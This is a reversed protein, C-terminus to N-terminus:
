AARIAPLDSVYEPGRDLLRGLMVACGVQDERVVSGAATRLQDPGLVDVAVDQVLPSHDHVAAWVLEVPLQPHAVAVSRPLPDPHDLGLIAAPLPCAWNALAWAAVAPVRDTALRILVAPNRSTRALALREQTPLHRCARATREAGDLAAGPAPDATPASHLM